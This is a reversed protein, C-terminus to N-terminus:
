AGNLFMGCSCKADFGVREVLQTSFNENLKLYIENLIKSEEGFEPSYPNYRVINVKPSEFNDKIFKITDDVDLDNEGNIFAMHIVVNRYDKLFKLANEPTAANGLWRKRFKPNLSYLSWYLWTDDFDHLIERATRQITKPIITSINFKVSDVHFDYSLKLLRSRLVDWNTKIEYNMLPEGRAMFNINLKKECMDVGKTYLVRQLQTEFLHLNVDKMGNQGSQTLHCFRCGMKCGNQSSLYAIIQDEKRQVFRCEVISGYYDMSYNVSNDIESKHIETKM